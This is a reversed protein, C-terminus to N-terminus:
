PNDQTKDYNFEKLLEQLTAMNQADVIIEVTYLPVMEDSRKSKFYFWKSKNESISRIDIRLFEEGTFESGITCLIKNIKQSM